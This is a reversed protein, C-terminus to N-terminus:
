SSWVWRGPLLWFSSALYTVCDLHKHTNLPDCGNLPRIPHPTSAADSLTKRRQTLEQSSLGRQRVPHAKLNFRQTCVRGTSESALGDGYEGDHVRFSVRSLFQVFQSLCKLFVPWHEYVPYAFYWLFLLTSMWMMNATLILGTSVSSAAYYIM